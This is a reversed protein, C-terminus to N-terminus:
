KQTILKKRGELTTPINEKLALDDSVLAPQMPDFVVSTELHHKLDPSDSTITSLMHQPLCRVAEFRPQNPLM